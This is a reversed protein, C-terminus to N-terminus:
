RAVSSTRKKKHDVITQKVAFATAEAFRSSLALGALMLKPFTFTPLLLVWVTVSVLVPLPATVIEPAVTVPAPKLMLPSERGKVSDRPCVVLKLAMKEGVAPPLAAPLMETTLLALLEGALTDSEPKPTVKRSLALGALM